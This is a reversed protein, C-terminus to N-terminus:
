HNLILAEATDQEELPELDFPLTIDYDDIALALLGKFINEMVLYSTTNTSSPTDKFGHLFGVQQGKLIRIDIKGLNTFLIHTEDGRLVYRAM